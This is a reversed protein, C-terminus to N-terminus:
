SVSKDGKNLDHLATWQSGLGTACSLQCKHWNDRKPRHGIRALTWKSGNGTGARKWKTGDGQLARCTVFGVKSPGLGISGPRRKGIWGRVSRLTDMQSQRLVARCCDEVAHVTSHIYGHCSLLCSGKPRIQKRTLLQIYHLVILCLPRPNSDAM